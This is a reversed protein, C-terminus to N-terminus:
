RTPTAARVVALQYSGDKIVWTIAASAPMEAVYTDILTAPDASILQSEERFSRGTGWYSSHIRLAMQKGDPSWGLFRVSSSFADKKAFVETLYESRLGTQLNLITDDAYSPVVVFKDDPSWYMDMTPPIEQLALPNAQVPAALSPDFYFVGSESQNNACAVTYLLRAANRPSVIANQAVKTVVRRKYFIRHANEACSSMLTPEVVYAGRQVSGKAPWLPAYVFPFVITGGVLALAGGAALYLRRRTQDPTRSSSVAPRISRRLLTVGSWVLLLTLFLLIASLQPLSPLAHPAGTAFVLALLALALGALVLIVFAVIGLVSRFM